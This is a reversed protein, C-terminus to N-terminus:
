EDDGSNFPAVKYTTDMYKGKPFTPESEEFPDYEPQFDPFKAKLEAHISKLFDIKQNYLVIDEPSPQPLNSVYDALEQLFQTDEAAETNITNDTTTNNTEM